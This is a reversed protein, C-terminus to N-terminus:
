AVGWGRFVGAFVVWARGSSDAHFTILRGIWLSRAPLAPDDRRTDVSASAAAHIDAARCCWL